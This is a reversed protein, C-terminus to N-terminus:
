YHNNHVPLFYTNEMKVVLIADKKGTIIPAVKLFDLCEWGVPTGDVFKWMKMGLFDYFRHVM